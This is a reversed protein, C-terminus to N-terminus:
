RRACYVATNFGNVRREDLRVGSEVQSSYRWVLPGHSYDHGDGSFGLLRVM